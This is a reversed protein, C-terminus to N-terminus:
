LLRSKIENIYNAITFSVSKRTSIFFHQLIPVNLLLYSLHSVWNWGCHVVLQAIMICTCTSISLPCSAPAEWGPPSHSLATYSLTKDLISKGSPCHVLLHQRATLWEAVSMAMAMICRPVSEILKRKFVRHMPVSDSVVERM